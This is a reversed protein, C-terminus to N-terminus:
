RKEFQYKGKVKNFLRITEIENDASINVILTDGVASNILFEDHYFKDQFFYSDINGYAKYLRVAGDEFDFEMYEGTVWSDKPAGEVTAFEMYCEDQLQAQKIKEQDFFIRFEIANANAFDSSFHPEGLYIAKEEDAFYLLFDSTMTFDKTKTKVDFTAVVKEFGHFYEIKEASVQLSDKELATLVPRQLLYGYEDELMYHLLGSTCYLEERQDYVEINDYADIQGRERLYDVKDARFTRITGDYHDQQIFVNGELVLMDRLRFYEGKDAYLSLTDEFVQVNGVMRTIKQKEFVEAFDTFFETEGYFFHVNGRLRTVYEDRIKDVTLTDAHILRYPHMEQSSLSAFMILFLFSGILTKM